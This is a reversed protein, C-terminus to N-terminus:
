FIINVQRILCACNEKCTGDPYKADSQMFQLIYKYFEEMYLFADYFSFYESLKTLNIIIKDIYNDNSLYRGPASV